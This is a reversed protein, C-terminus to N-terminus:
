KVHVRSGEILLYAGRSREVGFDATLRSNTPKCAFLQAFQRAAARHHAPDHQTSAPIILARRLGTLVHRIAQLARSRHQAPDDTCNSRSM